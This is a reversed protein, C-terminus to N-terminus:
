SCAEMGDASVARVSATDRSADCLVNEYIHLNRVWDYRSLVKARAAPVRMAQPADLWRLAETALVEPMDSICGQRGEFDEIGEWAEPTALLVKEMAMAELVKNQIGRAIRLPAVVAYAHALWPRVDEVRGTVTIGALQGLARVAATPKSGVIYFRADQRRTSIRPWVERAFWQTAHVNARYDMAGVFVIAREGPQYPDPYTRHPDWYETDVGNPIGHVKDALTPVQQRFFSAEAESVFVSAEFQEAIAREFEALRRAERRYIMRTLGGHNQAYQRWKDSDVDVFDMIRRLQAHRMVFPAVGSSYCLVLDLKHEALLREVWSRMVRDHYVGVTLAEGRMLSVLARWCSHWPGLPRICVEACLSEVPALYQWDTPDDVFTGLYVHYREALWRLVHYSRIKDGKSPPWPLRHCLFLVSRM